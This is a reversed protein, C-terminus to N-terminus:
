LCADPICCCGGASNAVAAGLCNCFVRWAARDLLELVALAWVVQCMEPASLQPLGAVIAALLASAGGAGGLDAAAAGPTVGLRAMAWVVVALESPQFSTSHAAACRLLSGLLASHQHHLAAFASAAQSCSHPTLGAAKGVVQVAVPCM